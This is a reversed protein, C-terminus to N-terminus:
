MIFEGLLSEFMVDEPTSPHCGKNVIRQRYCRTEWLDCSEVKTPSDTLQFTFDLPGCCQTCCDESMHCGPIPVPNNTTLLPYIRKM